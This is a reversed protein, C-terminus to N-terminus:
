AISVDLYNLTFPLCYLNGVNLDDSLYVILFNKLSIIRVVLVAGNVLNLFSFIHFYM